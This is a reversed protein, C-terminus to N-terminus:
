TSAITQAFNLTEVTQNCYKEEQRVNCIMIFKTPRYDEDSKNKNSLNDLFSMIPILLCNNVRNVSGEESVPSVYYKNVDYKEANTPQLVVKTNKYNKKNFYYILHNITENIYFSERLVGLIHASTYEPDLDPRMKKEILQEGGSPAMVSAMKTTESQIFMDFIDVPSERGATDVITIYGMKGTEFVLQFVFFLHSRSSVPNNPTKKIRGQSMRYKEIVDTLAYMDDVQLNDMNISSPVTKKFLDNENKAWDRMQPVERVLNHIKGRIKAFNVDVSAYYQEFLYKLKITKVGRLNALGYHIIGPVGKTGLLTFSKGAGSLGYGFLVISYGDEVQRFVNYLGPSVTESTEIINDVNIQLSGPQNIETPTREIGTYLDENGYTEDIVGFFEGFTRNIGKSTCTLNVAKQKKNSVEKMAVSRRKQDGGILPKIRIYVRVAGSLDEYINTLQIDQERYSKVNENWYDLINTLETCFSEPVKNRTSKSKLYQFNPSNMYQDLDLFTIHNMIESKVAEFKATINQKMAANLQTFVGINNYIIEDLKKIIEQKRYFINNLAFFNQIINYCNDYDIVKEVKTSNNQALLKRVSELEKRLRGIELDKEQIVSSSGISKLMQIQEDRLNLQEIQDSIVKRLEKEIDTVNQRLKDYESKDLREKTDKSRILERLKGDVLKLEKVLQKRYVDFNNEVKDSWNMWNNKYDKIRQILMAKDQLVTQACRNQHGDLVAEKIKSKSLEDKLNNLSETITSVANKLQQVESEKDGLKLTYESLLDSNKSIQQLNLEERAILENLKKVLGEREQVTKKYVSDLEEITLDKSKLFTEMQQKYDNIAKTFSEKEQIITQKCTDVEQQSEAYQKKIIDVTDQHEKQIAIHQQTTSDYMVKYKTAEDQVLEITNKLENVISNHEEIRITDVKNEIQFIRLLREKDKDTFGQVVPIMNLIDYVKKNTLKNLDLPEVLKCLTGTNTIYGIILKDGTVIFGIANKYALKVPHFVVKPYNAKVYEIISTSSM